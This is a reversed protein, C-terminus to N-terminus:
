TARETSLAETERLFASRTRAGMDWHGRLLTLAKQLDRGRLAGTIAAHHELGETGLRAFDDAFVYEYRYLRSKLMRLIRQLERNTCGAVLLEHWEQDLQVAKEPDHDEVTFTRRRDLEELEDLTEAPPVGGKELAEGELTGALGYLEEATDPTLPRVSFGKGPESSLFGEIELKLLAERLPTRSIELKRALEPESISSGPALDGRLLWDLLLRRVQDRLPERVLGSM